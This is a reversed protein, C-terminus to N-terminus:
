RLRALLVAPEAPVRLTGAFNGYPSSWSPAWLPRTVARPWLGMRDRAGLSGGRVGWRIFPSEIVGTRYQDYGPLM